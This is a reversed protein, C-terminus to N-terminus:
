LKSSQRTRSQRKSKSKSKTSVQLRFIGCTLLLLWERWKKGIRFLVGNLTRVNGALERKMGEMMELMENQLKEVKEELTGVIGRLLAVEKELEEERKRPWAGQSSPEEGDRTVIDLEDRSGSLSPETLLKMELAEVRRTLRQVKDNPAARSVRMELGEIRRVMRQNNQHTKEFYSVTPKSPSSDVKQLCFTRLLLTSNM